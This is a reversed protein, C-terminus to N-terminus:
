NRNIYTFDIRVNNVEMVNKWRNKLYKECKEWNIDNIPTNNCYDDISKQVAVGIIVLTLGVIAIILAIINIKKM